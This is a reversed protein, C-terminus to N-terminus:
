KEHLQKRFQSPTIHYLQKFVRTFYGADDIGCNVAIDSIPVDSTSLMRRAKEMRLHLVFSSSSLGTMTNLKRNLQSLSMCMKNALYESTLVENNTMQEQVYNTLREIFKKNALPMETTVM